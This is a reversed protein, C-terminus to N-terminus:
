TGPRHYVLMVVGAASMGTDATLSMQHQSVVRGSRVLEFSVNHLLAGGSRANSIPQGDLLLAAHGTGGADAHSTILVAASAHVQEISAPILFTVPTSLSGQATNSFLVFADCDPHQWDYYSVMSHSVESSRSVESSIAAAAAIAANIALVLLNDQLNRETDIGRQSTTITPDHRWIAAAPEGASLFAVIWGRDDFYVSITAPALTQDLAPYMPLAVIGFNSGLDTIVGPGALVTDDVRPLDTLALATAFVDLRARGEKATPSNEPAPVRYYASFGAYEVPFRTEADSSKVTFDTPSQMWGLSAGTRPNAHYGLAPEVGAPYVAVGLAILLAVLVLARNHRKIRNM